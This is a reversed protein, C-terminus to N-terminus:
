WLSKMRFKETRHSLFKQCSNVAYGKKAHFKKIGSNIQSGLPEGVSFQPVKFSFCEVSMLAVREGIRLFTVNRFNETVSNTEVFHKPVTPCFLESPFNYCAAVGKQNKFNISSLYWSYESVWFPEGDLKRPVSVLFIRRSITISWRGKM